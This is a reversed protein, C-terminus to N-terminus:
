LRHVEGKRMRARENHPTKTTDAQVTRGRNKPTKLAMAELASSLKPTKPTKPTNAALLAMGNRKKPTRFGFIDGGAVDKNEMFLTTPKELEELQQRDDDDSDGAVDDSSESKKKSRYEKKKNEVIYEDYKKPTRTRISRRRDQTAPAKKQPVYEIEEDTSM